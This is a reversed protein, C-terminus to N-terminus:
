PHSDIDGVGLLGERGVAISALTFLISFLWSVLFITQQLKLIGATISNHNEQWIEEKLSGLLLM